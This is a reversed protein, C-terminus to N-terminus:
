LMLADYAQQFHWHFPSTACASAFYVREMNNESIQGSDTSTATVNQKIKGISTFCKGEDSIVRASTSSLHGIKIPL